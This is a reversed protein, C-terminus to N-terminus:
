KSLHAKWRRIRRLINEREEPRIGRRGRARLFKLVIDMDRAVKDNPESDSILEDKASQVYEAIVDAPSSDTMLEHSIPDLLRSVRVDAPYDEEHSSTTGAVPPSPASSVDESLNEPNATDPPRYDEKSKVKSFIPIGDSIDRQGLRIRLERFQDFLEVLRAQMEDIIRQIEDLEHDDSM